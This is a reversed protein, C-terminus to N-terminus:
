QDAETRPPRGGAKYGLRMAIDNASAVRPSQPFRRAFDRYARMAGGLDGADMLGGARQFVAVEGQELADVKADLEAREKALDDVQRKLRVLTRQNAVRKEELVSRGKKAERLDREHGVLNNEVAALGEVLQAHDRAISVFRGGAVCLAAIVLLSAVGVVPATPFPRRARRQPSPTPSPTPPPPEPATVPGAKKSDPLAARAKMRSVAFSSVRRTTNQRPTKPRKEKM